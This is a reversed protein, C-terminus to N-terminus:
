ASKRRKRLPPEEAGHTPEGRALRCAALLRVSHKGAICACPPKAQLPQVMPSTELQRPGSVEPTTTQALASVSFHGRGETAVMDLLGCTWARAGRQDCVRVSCIENPLPKYVRIGDGDATRAASWTGAPTHVGTAARTLRKEATECLPYEGSGLRPDRICSILGVRSPPATKFCLSRRGWASAWVQLCRLRTGATESAHRGNEPNIRGPNCASGGHAQLGPCTRVHGMNLTLLVGKTQFRPVDM